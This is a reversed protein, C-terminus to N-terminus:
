AGPKTVMLFIAILMLANLALTVTRVQGFLREYDHGFAVPGEGANAAVDRGALESLRAERPALFGGGVGLIVLLILLSSGIWPDSFDYPGQLALYIGALLVVGGLPAVMREGLKAQIHHFFPLNSEFGKRAIAFVVPYTFTVGFALVVAAIHLFLVFNYFSIEALM